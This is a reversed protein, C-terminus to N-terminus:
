IQETLKGNEIYVVRDCLDLMRKDHTVMIAAKQRQKVERSLMEVVSRGRESDLSATPEDAFIVEPDNMLARAIAVRQREGGSLNEPYNKMRKSLGLQELLENAKKEAIKNKIGALEAILLLQDKVTLYPILNSMQFIFGIKSLRFENLKNAPLNSIEIDDILIRGSTPSLLAGAISLFTSKGSGSPGVVAVLEGAKVQISVQDLVTTALSDGDNYTKSINDLVLKNSM